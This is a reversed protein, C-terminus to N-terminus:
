PREGMVLRIEYHSAAPCSFSVQTPRCVESRLANRAAVDGGKERFALM